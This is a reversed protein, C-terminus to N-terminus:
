WTTMGVAPQNRIGIPDVGFASYWVTGDAAVLWYGNGDTTASVAPTTAIGVVPQNLHEPGPTVGVSPRSLETGRPRTDFAAGSRAAANSRDGNRGRNVVHVNLEAM